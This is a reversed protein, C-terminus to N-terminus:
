AVRVVQMSSGIQLNQATNNANDQIVEAEITDNDNFNYMGAVHMWAGGLETSGRGDTDSAAISTAGNYLLSLYLRDYRTATNDFVVSSTILYVGSKLMTIVGTTSSFQLLGDINVFQYAQNFIVTTQTADNISQASTIRQVRMYPCARLYSIRTLSVAELHDIRRKLASIEQFADLLHRDQHSM